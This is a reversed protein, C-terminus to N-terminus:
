RSEEAEVQTGGTAEAAGGLNRAERARPLEEVRAAFALQEEGVGHGLPHLLHLSVARGIQAMQLGPLPSEGAGSREALTVVDGLFAFSQNAHVDPVGPPRQYRFPAIIVM